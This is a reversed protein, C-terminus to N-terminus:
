QKRRVLFTLYYELGLNIFRSYLSLDYHHLYHFHSIVYLSVSVRSPLFLHLPGSTALYRTWFMWHSTHFFCKRIVSRSSLPASLFIAFFSHLPCLRVPFIHQPTVRPYSSTTSYFICYVLCCLYLIFSQRIKLELSLTPVLKIIHERKRINYGFRLCIKSVNSGSLCANSYYSLRLICRCLRVFIFYPGQTVLFKQALFLIRWFLVWSELVLTVWSWVRLHRIKRFVPFLDVYM